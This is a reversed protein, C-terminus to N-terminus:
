KRGEEIESPELVFSTQSVGGRHSGYAAPPLAVGRPENRILRDSVQELRLDQNRVNEATFNFSFERIDAGRGM